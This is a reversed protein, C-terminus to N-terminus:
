PQAVVARVVDVGPHEGVESSGNVVIGLDVLPAGGEGEDLLHVRRREDDAAVAIGLHRDSLGVFVPVREFRKPYLCFEHNVRVFTVEEELPGILDIHHRPEDPPEIVIHLWASASQGRRPNATRLYTAGGRTASGATCSIM